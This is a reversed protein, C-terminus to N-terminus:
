LIYNLRLHDPTMDLLLTSAKSSITVKLGQDRLHDMRRISEGPLFGSFNLLHLSGSRWRSELMDMFLDQVDVAYDLQSGAPLYRLFCVSLTKLHAAIGPLVLLSCLDRCVHMGAFQVGLHTLTPIAHLLPRLDAASLQRCNHIFLTELDCPERQLFSVIDVVPGSCHLERLVPAELYELFTSTTIALRDLHPLLIRPTLAAGHDKLTLACDVLNSASHLNSLHGDWTDTGRYQLLQSFPLSVRVPSRDWFISVERLSPAVDFYECSYIPGFLPGDDPQPVEFDTDSVPSAYLKMSLGRLLPVRGRIRPLFWNDGAMPFSIALTEWRWSQELLLHTLKRSNSTEKTRTEMDVYNLTVHLPLQGSHELQTALRLCSEDPRLLLDLNVVAWLAPQSLLIAHWLRCVHSVTWVAVTRSPTRRPVAIAFFFILSLIETPIQRLPSLAGECKAILADLQLIHNKQSSTAAIAGLEAIWRAKEASATALLDQISRAEPEKPAENSHLLASIHDPLSLVTAM